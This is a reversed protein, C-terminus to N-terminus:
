LTLLGLVTLTAYLGEALYDAYSKMLGVGVQSSQNLTEMVVYNPRVDFVSSQTLPLRPLFLSGSKIFSVSMALVIFFSPALVQSLFARRNRRLHHFRIIIIALAQQQYLFWSKDELAKHREEVFPM